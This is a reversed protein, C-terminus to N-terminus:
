CRIPLVLASPVFGLQRIEFERAEGIRGVNYGKHLEKVAEAFQKPVNATVSISSSVDTQCSQPQQEAKNM